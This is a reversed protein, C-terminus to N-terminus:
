DVIEANNIFEKIEKQTDFFGVDEGESQYKENLVVMYKEEYDHHETIELVKEQQSKTLKMM